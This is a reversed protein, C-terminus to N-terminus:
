PNNPKQTKIVNFFENMGGLEEFLGEYFDQGMESFNFVFASMLSRMSYISKKSDKRFEQMVIEQYVKPLRNFWHNKNKM